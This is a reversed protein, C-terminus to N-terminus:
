LKHFLENPSIARIYDAIDELKFGYESSFSNEILISSELKEWMYDIDNYGSPYEFKPDSFIRILLNKFRNASLRDSFSFLGNM